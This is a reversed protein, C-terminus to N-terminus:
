EQFLCIMDYEGRLPLPLSHHSCFSDNSHLAADQLSCIIQSSLPLFYLPDVARIWGCYELPAIKDVYDALHSCLMLFLPPCTLPAVSMIDAVNIKVRRAWMSKEKQM